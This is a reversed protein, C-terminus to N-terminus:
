ANAKLTKLFRLVWEEDLSKLEIVVQILHSLNVNNM